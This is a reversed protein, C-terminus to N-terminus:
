LCNYENISEFREVRGDRVAMSLCQRAGPNWWMSIASAGQPFGGKSVFGRARLADDASSGRAGVLDNVNVYGAYGSHHGQSSRYATEAARKEGGKNYGDSYDPRNNYNHYGQNYLADRYGREFEAVDQPSQAAREKRSEHSKHALFAVGALAAAAIAIQAGKSPGSSGSATQNCDHEDTTVIQTARNGNVAVRICQDRQANWWYQWYGNTGTASHALVYGRLPLQRSVYDDGQNLLDSNNLAAPPMAPLQGARQCEGSGVGVAQTVRYDNVALRVCQGRADSWWYQWFSNGKAAASGTLVYGRQPMARSAYESSQYLLDELGGVQSLAPLPAIVLAASVGAAMGRAWLDAKGGNAAKGGQGKRRATAM